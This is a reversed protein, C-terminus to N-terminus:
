CAPSSRILLLVNVNLTLFKCFRHWTLMYYIFLLFFLLWVSKNAYVCTRVRLGIGTTLTNMATCRVGRLLIHTPRCDGAARSIRSRRSRLVM